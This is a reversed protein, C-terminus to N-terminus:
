DTRERLREKFMKEIAGEVDANKSKRDRHFIGYPSTENRYARKPWAHDAWCWILAGCVFPADFATFEAEIAQKQLQPGLQGDISPVLGHATPYGFETIFIPKGPYREHLKALETKWYDASKSFDYDPDKKWMRGLESPYGNLCIVDDDAFLPHNEANAWRGRESVHVALRTPDLTKVVRILASNQNAVARSQENQENGVSWLIISPHNRNHRIMRQVYNAAEDTNSGTLHVPMEVMFLIGLEDCLDLTGSDNPYHSGRLFNAGMRKMRELDQRAVEMNKAMGTEPTDEHRNFGVMYIPDGNLLVRSDRVEVTRFGFRTSVESVKTNKDEVIVNATYLVPTEPSWAAAGPVAVRLSIETQEGSVLQAPKEITGVARGESDTVVVRVVSDAPVPRQNSIALKLRVEGAKAKPAPAVVAVDDVHIDGIAQMRVDRLIGGDHYWGGRYPINGRPQSSVRVVLVNKQGFRVESQLDFSVPLYPDHIGELRKGNFFFTATNNVGDFTLRLRKGRWAAPVDFEKRFWGVGSFKEVGAVCQGFGCPVSASAWDKLDLKDATFGSAQDKGKDPDVRVLWEGTLDMAQHLGVRVVSQAKEKGAALTSAIGAVSRNDTDISTKHVKGRLDKDFTDSNSSEPLSQIPEPKVSSFAPVVLVQEKSIELTLPQPESGKPAPELALIVADAQQMDYLFDDGYKYVGLDGGERPYVEKIQYLADPNEDLQLWRNLSISARVAKSGVPFLFLFGRDKIIHASGDVPSDGPCDFLDRKVKLYAHNTTAWARWKKLFELNEELALGKFGPGFKGYSTASLTTLLSLRFDKPTEGFVASMNKYPPRFRDNQNHWAQFRNM